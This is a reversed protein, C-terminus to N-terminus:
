FSLKAFIKSIELSGISFLTRTQSIESLLLCCPEEFKQNAKRLYSGYNTHILDVAIKFNEPVYSFCLSHKEPLDFNHSVDSKRYYYPDNLGIQYSGNLPISSHAQYSYGIRFRDTVTHNAGVVGGISFAKKSSEHYYGQRPTELSGTIDCYKQNLKQTGYIAEISAGLSLNGFRVSIGNM